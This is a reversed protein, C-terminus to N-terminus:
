GFLSFNDKNSKLVCDFNWLGLKGKVEKLETPRVGGLFWSYARPYVDCCAFKEDDKVMPLCNEINAVAFIKGSIESKPSQSAHLLVVGRYKTKWVRTEITKKGKLILSAWPEKITLVKM